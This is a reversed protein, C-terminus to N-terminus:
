CEEYPNVRRVSPCGLEAKLVAKQSFNLRLPTVAEIRKNAVIMYIGGQFPWCSQGLTELFRLQRYCSLNSLPPRFCLTKLEEVQFNLERLWHQLAFLGIFKGNWPVEQSAGGKFFRKMGWLSSPNFGFIVLTGESILIEAQHLLHQPEPCFELVHPLLMFDISQEQFPLSSFESVVQSGQWQRPQDSVELRIQHKIPSNELWELSRPGALQVLHYGFHSALLRDLEYQQQQYVFDGLPTQYWAALKEYVNKM